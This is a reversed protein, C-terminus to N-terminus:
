RRHALGNQTALAFAAGIRQLVGGQPAGGQAGAEGASVVGGDQVGNGGRQLGGDRRTRRGRRAQNDRGQALRVGGGMQGPAGAAEGQDPVCVAAGIQGRGRRGGRDIHQGELGAVAEVRNREGGQDPQRRSRQFDGRGGLARQVQGKGPDGFQQDHAAQSKVGIRATVGGRLKPCLGGVRGLGGGGLHLRSM